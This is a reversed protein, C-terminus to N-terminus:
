SNLLIEVSFHSFIMGYSYSFIVKDNLYIALALAEEPGNTWELIKKGWYMRSLYLCCKLVFALFSSPPGGIKQGFM